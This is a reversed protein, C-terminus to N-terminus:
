MKRVLSDIFKNNNSEKLLKEKAKIYEKKDLLKITNILEQANKNKFSSYNVLYDDVMKSYKDYNDNFLFILILYYNSLIDFMQGCKYYNNIEIVDNFTEIANDLEMKRLYLYAEYLKNKCFNLRSIPFKNLKIIKKLADSYQKTVIANNYFNNRNIMVFVNIISLVISILVMIGFMLFSINKFYVNEYDDIINSLVKYCVLPLILILLVVWIFNYYKKSKYKKTKKM